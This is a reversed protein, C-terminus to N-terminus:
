ACPSLERSEWTCRGLGDTHIMRVAPESMLWIWPHDVVDVGGVWREVWAEPVGIHLTRAALQAPPQATRWSREDAICARLPPRVADLPDTLGAGPEQLDGRREEGRREKGGRWGDGVDMVSATRCSRAGRVVGRAVTAQARPGDVTAAIPRHHDTSALSPDRPAGSRPEGRPVPSLLSSAVPAQIEQTRCSERRGCRRRPGVRGDFGDRDRRSWDAPAVPTDRARGVAATPM